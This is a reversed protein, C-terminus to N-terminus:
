RACGLSRLRELDEESLRNAQSTASPLYDLADLSRRLRRAQEPHAHILNRLEGPDWELALDTTADARRQSSGTTVIGTPSVLRDAPDKIFGAEFTEFGQHLGFRETVPFASLFAATEYGVGKLVDALGHM